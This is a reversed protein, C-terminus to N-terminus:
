NVSRSIEYWSTGDHILELITDDASTFAASLDVSNPNYSNDDTISVLADVFLLVIRQGAFAMTGTITALTNTGSDGTIVILPADAEFTMAGAGLTVSKKYPVTPAVNAAEDIAHPTVTGSIDKAYNGATNSGPTPDGANDGLMIASGTTGTPSTATGVLLGEEVLRLNEAAGAFFRLSTVASNMSGISLSNDANITIVNVATLDGFLYQYYGNANLQFIGAHAGLGGVATMSGDSGVQFKVDGDAICQLFWTEPRGDPAPWGTTDTLTLDVKIARFIDSAGAASPDNLTGSLSLVYDDTSSSTFTKDNDEGLWACSDVFDIFQTETPVDGTELTAKVVTRTQVTM